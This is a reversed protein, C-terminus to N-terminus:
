LLDLDVEDWCGEADFGDEAGDRVCWGFPLRPLTLKETHNNDIKKGIKWRLHLLLSFLTNLKLTLRRRQQRPGPLSCHCRVPVLLSATDAGWM